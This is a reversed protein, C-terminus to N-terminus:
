CRHSASPPSRSESSCHMVMVIAPRDCDLTAQITRIAQLIAANFSRHLNSSSQNPLQSALARAASFACIDNSLAPPPPSHTSSSSTALRAHKRYTVSNSPHSASQFTKPKPMNENHLHILAVNVIQHPKSADDVGTLLAGTRLSRGFTLSLVM